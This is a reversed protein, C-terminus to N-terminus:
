ALYRQTSCTAEEKLTAISGQRIIGIKKSSVQSFKEGEEGATNDTYRVHRDVRRGIQINCRSM